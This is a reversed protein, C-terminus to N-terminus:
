MADIQSLALPRTLTQEKSSSLDSRNHLWSVCDRMRWYSMINEMLYKMISFFEISRNYDQSQTNIPVKYSYNTKKKTKKM